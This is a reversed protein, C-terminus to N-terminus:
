RVPVLTLIAVDATQRLDVLQLSAMDAGDVFLRKGTGLVVPYVMLHLEDVLGLGILAGALRASGAVLIDGSYQEKLKAVEAALDGSVVTTNNWEPDRLTASYVVKPMENMKIGFEGAGDMAPWAAAFGEYTVRGLLQVDSAVLEDFKFKGGEEGSDNRFAWGGRETKEAGGPDEIVGDLTIFETVVLKGM